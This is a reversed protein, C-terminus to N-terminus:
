NFSLIKPHGIVGFRFLDTVVGNCGRWAIWNESSITVVTAHIFLILIQFIGILYFLGLLLLSWVIIFRLLRLLWPHYFLKGIPKLPQHHFLLSLSVICPLLLIFSFAFSILFQISSQFAYVLLGLSKSNRVNFENKMKLNM